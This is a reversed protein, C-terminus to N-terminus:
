FVISRLPVSIAYGQLQASLNPEALLKGNSRIPSKKRIIKRYVYIYISWSAENKHIEQFVLSFLTTELTM